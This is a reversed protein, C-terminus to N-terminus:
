DGLFIPKNPFAINLPQHVSFSQGHTFPLTAHQDLNSQSTFRAETYPFNPKFQIIIIRHRSWGISLFPCDVGVCIRDIDLWARKREREREREFREFREAVLHLRLPKTHGYM